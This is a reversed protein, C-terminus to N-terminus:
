DTTVEEFRYVSTCTAMVGIIRRSSTHDLLNTLLQNVLDPRTQTYQRARRWLVFVRQDFADDFTSDTATTLHDCDSSISCVVSRRELFSIDAKGHNARTRGRVVNKEWENYKVCFAASTQFFYHLTSRVFDYISKLYKTCLKVMYSRGNKHELHAIKLKKNITKHVSCMLSRIVQRLRFRTFLSMTVSSPPPALSAFQRFIIKSMQWFIKSLFKKKLNPSFGAM